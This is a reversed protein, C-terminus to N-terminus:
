RPKTFGAAFVNLAYGAPAKLRKLVEEATASSPGADHDDADDKAQLFEDAVRGTLGPSPTRSSVPNQDRVCATVVVVSTMIMFFRHTQGFSM